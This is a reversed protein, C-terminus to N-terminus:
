GEILRLLRDVYNSWTYEKVHNHAAMCLSRYNRANFINKLNHSICEATFSTNYIGCDLDEGFDDVFDKYPSVIVPTYFYMSEVTSSYGGWLPTPNVFVRANLMLNYYLEREEEMDKRLFGHCFVNPPIETFSEETLGIIHLRANPRSQQLIAFADILKSAGKLYKKGGVFLIDESKEKRRLIDEEVLPKDYLSNIVNMALHHVNANPYAKKIMEACVPFLSVVFDAHSIAENQQKIFIKEIPYLERTLRDKIWVDYTWDCLLLTPINSYKNYYDFCTFMCLDASPYKKVAKKIRRNTVWKFLPTRTYEFVNKPYLLGLLGKMVLYKWARCLWVNAATNVRRIKIGKEQLTKTLLYPVNSWTSVNESDGYCFYIIEKIM